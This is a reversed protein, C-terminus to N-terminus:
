VQQNCVHELLFMGSTRFLRRRCSSRQQRHLRPAPSCRMHMRSTDLMTSAYLSRVHCSNCHVNGQPITTGSVAFANLRLLVLQVVGEQGLKAALFRCNTSNECVHSHHLAAQPLQLPSRGKLFTFNSGFGKHCLM